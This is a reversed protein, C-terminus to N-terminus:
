LSSLFELFSMLIIHPLLLLSKALVNEQLYALRVTEADTSNGKELYNTMEMRLRRLSVQASGGRRGGRKRDKERKIKGESMRKTKLIKELFFDQSRKSSSSFDRVHLLKTNKM